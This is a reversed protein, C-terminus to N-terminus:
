DWRALTARADELLREIRKRSGIFVTRGATRHPQVLGANRLVKLHGSVTPQSMRLVRALDMV